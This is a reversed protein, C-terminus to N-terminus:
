TLITVLSVVIHHHSTKGVINHASGIHVLLNSVSPWKNRCFSCELTKEDIENRLKHKYHKLSYHSYLLNRGRHNKFHCSEFHCRPAGPKGEKRKLGTKPNQRRMVTKTTQNQRRTVSKTNQSRLFSKTNLNSTRAVTKNNDQTLGLFHDVMGHLEGLHRVTNNLTRFKKSCEPCRNNEIKWKRMIKRKFHTISYHSYLQQKSMFSRSCKTCAFTKKEGKVEERPIQLRKILLRPVGYKANFREEDRPPTEDEAPPDSVQRIEPSRTSLPSSTEIELKRTPLKAPM